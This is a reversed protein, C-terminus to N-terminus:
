GVESGFLIAAVEREASERAYGLLAEFSANVDSKEGAIIAGGKIKASHPALKLGAQKGNETLSANLRDLLGGEFKARDAEAVILTETGTEVANLVLRTLLQEYRDKPLECLRKQALDFAEDLVERKRRLTNKRMELGTVLMKRRKIEEAEAVAAKEIADARERAAKLIAEASQEAKEKAASLIVAAEAEAEQRIKLLIKETSLAL